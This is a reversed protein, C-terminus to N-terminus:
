LFNATILNALFGGKKTCLQERHIQCPLSVGKEVSKLGQLMVSCKGKEENWSHVAKGGMSVEAMSRLHSELEQIKRQEEEVSKKCKDKEETIASELIQSDVSWLNM